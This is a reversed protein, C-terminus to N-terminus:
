FLKLFYGVFTSVDLHKTVKSQQSGQKFEENHKVDIQLSEVLHDLLWFIM